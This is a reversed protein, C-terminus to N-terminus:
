IFIMTMMVLCKGLQSVERHSLSLSLLTAFHFVVFFLLLYFKNEEYSLSIFKDGFINM